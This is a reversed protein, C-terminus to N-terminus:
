LFDTKVMRDQLELMKRIFPTINPHSTFESFGSSAGSKSEAIGAVSTLPIKDKELAILAYKLDLQFPM